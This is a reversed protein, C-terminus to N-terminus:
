KEGDGQGGTGRDGRRGTERDGQRGAKELITVLNVCYVVLYDIKQSCFRFDDRDVVRNIPYLYLYIQMFMAQFM